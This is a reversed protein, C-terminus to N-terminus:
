AVPWVHHPVVAICFQQLSPLATIRPSQALKRLTLLFLVSSNLKGEAIRRAIMFFSVPVYHEKSGLSRVIAVFLDDVCNVSIIDQYHSQCACQSARWCLCCKGTRPLGHSPTPQLGQSLVPVVSTEHKSSQLLQRSQWVHCTHVARGWSVWVSVSREVASSWISSPAMCVMSLNM